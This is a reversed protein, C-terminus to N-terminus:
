IGENQIFNLTFSAQTRNFKGANTPPRVKSFLDMQAALDPSAEEEEEEDDDDNDDEQENDNSDANDDDFVPTNPRTGATRKISSQAGFLGVGSNIESKAPATFLGGATSSPKAFLSATNFSVSPASSSVDKGFLSSSQKQSDGFLNASQQSSTKPDASFLSSSPQKFTEGAGFVKNPSVKKGFM